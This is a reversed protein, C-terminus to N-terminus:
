VYYKTLVMIKNGFELFFLSQHKFKNHFELYKLSCDKNLKEMEPLEKYVLKTPIYKNNFIKVDLITFSIIYLILLIVCFM